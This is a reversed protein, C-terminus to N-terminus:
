FILNDPMLYNIFKDTIDFNMESNSEVKIKGDKIYSILFNEEPFKKKLIEKCIETFEKYKSLFIKFETKTM